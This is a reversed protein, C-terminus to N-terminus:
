INPQMLIRLTHPIEQNDLFTRDSVESLGLEIFENLEAPSLGWPPGEPLSDAPRTRTILLLKGGPKVLSFVAWIAQSRLTIETKNAIDIPLSQITRCEFVLDFNSRWNEPLKFLDAVQYNVQSNPFRDRCWAIATPSVDFATVNYGFAQLAEADDGLGCGIVIASKEATLVSETELWKALEPHPQLKAWPVRSPDKESQQYLTEFWGYPQSKDLYEAALKKVKARLDEIESESM